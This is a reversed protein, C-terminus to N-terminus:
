KSGRSINKSESGGVWEIMCDRTPLSEGSKNDFFMLEEFYSHMKSDVLKRFKKGIGVFTKKAIEITDMLNSIILQQYPEIQKVWGEYGIMKGFATRNFVPWHQCAEEDTRLTAYPVDVYCYKKLPPFFRSYVEDYTKLWNADAYIIDLIMKKSHTIQLLLASMYEKLNPYKASTSM